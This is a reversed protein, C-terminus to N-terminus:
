KNKQTFHLIKGKKFPTQNKQPMPLGSDKLEIAGSSNRVKEPYTSPFRPGTKTHDILKINFLQNKWKVAQIMCFILVSEEWRKTPEFKMVISHYKNWLANLSAEDVAILQKALKKLLNEM